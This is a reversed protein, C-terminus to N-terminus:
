APTNAIRRWDTFVPDFRREKLLRVIDHVSRQDEVDFQPDQAERDVQTYGGVATNSGASLRTVGLEIAHDRLRATERTSLNIGVRPFLTRTLCLVKVFTRDDVPASGPFSEGKIPRFRPFSLSYEVGPYHREMWRLHTYLAHLDGALDPALGLLIGLSLARMGARAAREPGHYRFDYDAKTGALHVEAYRKRDYTEQYLTVGDAGAAFLERYGAEDMPHVELAIASFYAKAVTVAEVLYPNPTAAYSEGTLLLVNRIGQQSLFRMEAHMQDPTLKFRRIRNARKFGCYACDSSCYNSLYLPAYLSLTRGFHQRTVASSRQALAELAEPRDDALVARLSELRLATM